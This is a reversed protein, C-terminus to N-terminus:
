QFWIHRDRGLPQNHAACIKKMDYKEYASEPVYENKFAMAISRYKLRSIPLHTNQRTRFDNQLPKACPNRTLNQM